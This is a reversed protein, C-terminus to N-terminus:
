MLRDIFSFFDTIPIAINMGTICICICTITITIIIISSKYTNNCYEDNNNDYDVNIM